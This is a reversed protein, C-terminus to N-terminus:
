KPGGLFKDRVADFLKMRNVALWPAGFQLAFGTVAAAAITAIATGGIYSAAFPALFSALATTLAVSLALAYLPKPEGFTVGYCTGAFAGFVAPLPVGFLALAWEQVAGLLAAAGSTAAVGQSVAHDVAVQTAM